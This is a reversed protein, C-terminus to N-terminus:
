STTRGACQDSVFLSLAEGIARKDDMENEALYGLKMLDDVWKDNVAISVSRNASRLKQRYLRSRAAPSLYRRTFPAVSHSKRSM